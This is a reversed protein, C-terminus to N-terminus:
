EFFSTEKTGFWANKEDFGSGVAGSLRDLPAVFKPGPDEEWQDLLQSLELERPLPGLNLPGDRM